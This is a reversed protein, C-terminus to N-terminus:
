DIIYVLAANAYVTSDKPILMGKYTYDETSSHAIGTPTVTRWRFCLEREETKYM